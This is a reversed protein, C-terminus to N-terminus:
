EDIFQEIIQNIDELKVNGLWKNKVIAVPADECSGTCMCELVKTHKHLGQKKLSKEFAKEIDKAGKKKCDKDKCVFIFQRYKDYKKSM